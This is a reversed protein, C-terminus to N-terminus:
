AAGGGFDGFWGTWPTREIVSLDDTKYDYDPNPTRWDGYVATLYAEHDAPKRWQRGLFDFPIFETERTETLYQIRVRRGQRPEIGFVKYRLGGASRSHEFFDFHAGDKALRYEVTAGDNDVYSCSRQFGAEELRPVAELFRGADERMYGFDADWLDHALVRGERAWGILLGGIVWYRGAFVTSELVDRLLVLNTEFKRRAVFQRVGSEIRGLGETRQYSEDEDPRRPTEYGPGYRYAALFPRPPAPVPFSRGYLQLSEASDLFSRPFARCGYPSGAGMTVLDDEVLWAYLDAHQTNAASYNIGPVDPNGLDLTFGAREIEGRLGHLADLDRRLIGFDVDSDWPIFEGGRVAGLLTGYDLWHAIGHRTLLDGTFFLIEKLAETCCPPRLYGPGATWYECRASSRTCGVSM